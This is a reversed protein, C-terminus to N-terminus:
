DESFLTDDVDEGLEEEEGGDDDDVEIVINKVKKTGVGTHTKNYERTFATKVKTPIEIGDIVVDGIAEMFDDRTLGLKDLLQIAGKIDPKDAALLGGIIKQLSDIYDLRLGGSGNNSSSRLKQALDMMWRKHKLRKSNKGLWQPFIQFPAYGKVVKTASVTAAVYHPLLGWDQKQHIRRDMIDGASVLEAARVIDDLSDKGAAIYAESVMLPIMNYDVFVLNSATNFDASKNAFLKQTASFADLRLTADKKGSTGEDGYFELTNLIARIDNGSEECMKELEAKKIDIRESVAVKLLGNAITGKVPRSFKIELCVGAIPKLKPPKENAICIIPTASKRIIEAIEGVGGRESLGDVEDMIIVEKRLRRVGLAFLGRLVSVSRTDSANYETVAYGLSKAVLHAVTTKGIGPPGICLVGGAGGTWNSLWHTLTAIQEKHGIVDVLSKPAYKDVLMKKAECTTADSTTAAIKPKLRRIIPVGLKVAQKYRWSETIPRGDNCTAGCLLKVGPKLVKHVTYKKGDISAKNYNGTVCVPTLETSLSASAM